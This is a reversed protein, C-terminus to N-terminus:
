SLSDVYIYYTGYGFYGNFFHFMFSNAEPNEVYDFNIWYIMVFFMIVLVLFFQRLCRKEYGEAAVIRSRERSVQVSLNETKKLPVIAAEYISFIMQNIKVNTSASIRTNEDKAMTILSDILANDKNNM